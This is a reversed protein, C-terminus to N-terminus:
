YYREYRIRSKDIGHQLLLNEVDEIMEMGGCIYCDSDKPLSDDIYQTIRGKRGPWEEERSVYTILEFNEHAEALESMVTNDILQREYSVGYVLTIKRSSKISLLEHKIMSLMPVIGTGTAFFYVPNDAEEYIFNGLPFLVGVTDGVEVNDFFISGPGGPTTDVFTEVYTNEYPPNAISYSRRASGAVKLSMFQGAIFDVPAGIDFRVRFLQVDLKQKEVIKIDQNRLM